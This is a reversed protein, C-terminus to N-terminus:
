RTGGLLGEVASVVADVDSLDGFVLDAGAEELEATSFRATAVGLARAGARHAAEVDRPTDGVLVTATAEVRRGHIREARASAEAVLEWREGASDGFAGVDTLHGLGAARLKWCGVARANGTLVGVVHGRSALEGTVAVVGPLVWDRRGDGDVMARYRDAMVDMVRELGGPASGEEVDHHALAARAIQSDLRGGLEIPVDALTGTLGYVETLAEEFARKHAPDGARILTGDVDFLVLGHM